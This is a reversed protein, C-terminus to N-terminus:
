PSLPRVVAFLPDFKEDSTPPLFAVLSPPIWWEIRHLVERWALTTEYESRRVNPTVYYRGDYKGSADRMVIMAIKPTAIRYDTRMHEAIARRLPAPITQLSPTGITVQAGDLKPMEQKTDPNWRGDALDAVAGGWFVWVPKTESSSQEYVVIGAAKELAARALERMPYAHAAADVGSPQSRYAYVYPFRDQGARVEGTSFVTETLLRRPIEAGQAADKSAPEAARVISPGAIASVFVFAALLAVFRKV